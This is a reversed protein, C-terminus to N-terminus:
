LLICVGMIFVFIKNEVKPLRGVSRKTETKDLSSYAKTAQFKTVIEPELFLVYLSFKCGNGVVSKELIYFIM